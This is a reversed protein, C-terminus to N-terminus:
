KEYSQPAKMDSILLDEATAELFGEVAARLTLAMAASVESGPVAWEEPAPCRTIIM